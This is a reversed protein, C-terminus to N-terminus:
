VERLRELGGGGWGAGTLVKHRLLKSRVRGWLRAGTNPMRKNGPEELQDLCCHELSECVAKLSCDPQPLIDMMGATLRGPWIWASFRLLACAARSLAATQARTSLRATLPATGFCRTHAEPKEEGGEADEEEEEEKGRGPSQLRSAASDSAGSPGLAKGCAAQQGRRHAASGPVRLAFRSLAVARQLCHM